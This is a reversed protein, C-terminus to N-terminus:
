KNSPAPGVPSCFSPCQWVCLLLRSLCCLITPFLLVGGGSEDSTSIPFKCKLRLNWVYFGLSMIWRVSIVTLKCSRSFFFFAAGLDRSPQPPAFNLLAVVWFVLPPHYFDVGAMIKRGKWRRFFFLFLGLVLLSHGKFLVGRLSEILEFHSHWNFYARRM